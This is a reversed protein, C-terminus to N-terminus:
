DEKFDSFPDELVITIKKNNKKKKAAKKKNRTKIQKPSQVIKDKEKKRKIKKRKIKKRGKKEIDKLLAMMQLEAIIKRLYFFLFVMFFCQFVIMWFNWAVINEVSDNLFIWPFVDRLELPLKILEL